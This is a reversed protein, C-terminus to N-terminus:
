PEERQSDNKRAKIIKLLEDMVLSLKEIASVVRDVGVGQGENLRRAIQNLNNGIKGIAGVAASLLKLDLSPPAKRPRTTAVSELTVHRIYSPVSLGHKTANEAIEFLEIEDVRVGIVKTKRRENSGM